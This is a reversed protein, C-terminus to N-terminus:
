PQIVSEILEGSLDYRHLVRSVSRGKTRLEKRCDTCSFEILNGDTVTPREGSMLLKSLLRKPGIPCRIEVEVM